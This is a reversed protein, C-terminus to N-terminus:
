TTMGSLRRGSESSPCAFSAVYRHTARPISRWYRYFRLIPKPGAQTTARGTATASSKSSPGTYREDVEQLAGAGNAAHKDMESFLIDLQDQCDVIPLARNINGTCIMYRSDSYVEVQDRRVGRPVHGRCIIHVGEGSQSIETYSTFAGYIAEHRKEQEVTKPKDLDIFCYPDDKTLVFGIHPYGAAVSVEHSSWTSRDKVSAPKGTKADIPRKDKGACVWQPLARLEEPLNAKDRRDDRNTANM